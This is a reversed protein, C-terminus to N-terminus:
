KRYEAGPMRVALGAACSGVVANPLDKARALCMRRPRGREFASSLSSRREFSFASGTKELSTIDDTAYALSASAWVAVAGRNDALVFDESLVNSTPESFAGVNCSVSSVFPVRGNTNQLDNPSGIDM